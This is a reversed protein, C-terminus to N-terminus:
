HFLLTKGPDAGNFVIEYVAFIIPLNVNHKKALAVAAPLVNVGEVVMGVEEIAIKAPVGSGILMGCRNNRSHRSTATVILDGIGAIGSFTERRCGLQMGLRMMEENGMTMIAAKANDGYGLGASIGAALAIINKLAGCLEVGKIDTSTYVRFAPNSFVERVTEAAWADTSAAIITTPLEIAVEEAHTPGSLAVVSNPLGANSLEDTIIESMTCFTVDEIGKAVDAILQSAVIYPAAKRVTARLYVSPVSFLVIDAGRVAVSIDSTLEIKEPIAVNLNKNFRTERLQRIEEEIASWLVVANGHKVLMCALATGWTGSGLVAIRM